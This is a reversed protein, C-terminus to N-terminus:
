VFAQLVETHSGIVIRVNHVKSDNELLIYKGPQLTDNVYVEPSIKKLDQVVNIVYTTDMYQYKLTFSKWESPICPEFWIRDGERRLGLFWEIILQYMWGASGTYWTWGGRGLHLPEAYIDAAMVYPEVKYKAISDESAGHNIPNIMQLLQWTRQKDKLAAFAMVLWIAAHTYQGGNERVGPVYGKIYGPNLQSKDFPPEFLQILGADKKILYKDASSIAMKSREIDGGGSLVSWSQVISDIRCEDNSSSGLPTGDDFYARRYWEGDWCNKEINSKLQKAEEKCREAFAHDAKVGAIKEFRILIDYLFFALWVSEGKGHEGVKDMGDNWDGSGIFPIGHEGFKLAHEISRKCHDYLSASEHSRIPLDYYSEEGANLMRGELFAISEDLIGKDGSTAVYRATVFPLWLFDDSCTTRVGRGTPPHWWHQVDGEKFQRSANLLIQRHVIFPKSYLLSLTDQLQDRFGFAGGSQYFGSRAWIRCALSQYNLWGNTLINLADDPTEIEIVGLTQVWYHKIKELSEHACSTGKYKKIIEPIDDYERVAGIRYIVEKEEEMDLDFVVQMATCPDLAAGTKGSLKSRHMAEPNRIIGNRGIFEVRDNTYTKNEGDADFFIVRNEFETNYPNRILIAGTENQVETLLHMQTKSKLDGLIWEMYGTVSLRRARKSQNQFKLVIFKVSAELDVFMTMESYINDESHQFISYGFGHRTVYPSKSKVPLPSPSWYRGSEEDRIFFAEGALDSVPDNNWPTIRFEHANELWTYSQGSESVITAFNENALVNVWPAPTAKGPTTIIVYEKGDKSFGGMGNFFQLGTPLEISSSVSPHFKTPTFYSISTRAKSRKNAQDLLSGLKDSIVIRALTQFLIRDENSIQDSSRFFIGGPREKIDNSLAPAILSQIENQLVQRYGGHDENWIVLDVILGKLRWYAHAQIMQKVLEINASDEIQLLVIPLDGSVSYSWLSPQGRRNKIIINQDARLTPNSFIVSGALKSYLQADEETANIQRLVVQSHTWSLEIARSRLYRDQYKEVLANCLDKTDAIGILMDVTATEQPEISIRYQISIIPDLVSGQTGSLGDKNNIFAPEHITNGRGIFKSRDTEYSVSIVEARHTKMLHFMSPNHEDDSRPRRTCLIANLKENIETQIFLNSFAPHAVDANFKTLVVEAYSTVEITRKKKSRNTIHLRRLEVDDEPSVVIETHTELGYDRRRFEARGQSFVAEYNEGEKLSPQFAPSWFLSNDQDLDKIFCFNGWNDCTGDERWRTLSIDNWRSYGGGANTVMVHYRGNSLLQIEPTPTDPTNIVRVSLNAVEAIRSTDSIHMVPSYFTSVRPIREQLLLLTAKFRVEAEFRKQMPQGLLRYALALFGMGQHHCMYSRIIVHDQGRPLRAPTYDIAEFFGYEGEFGSLSMQELNKCSEDPAVMLAMMTSYPSVVLDDALGRKFGLGPVGFARYQYNMNSDVANYGSESIGWPVNRRKGYEIQKSVIAKHTQDLLTNDYSPTVLMPMLYEFMSGSWSLLIPSTGASTLQRGLAFWSEQPIKGQAIAAFTTLRAESALLDYFSNDRRHEDVNYGITFLHQKKDYLFDFSLDSFEECHRALGDLMLIRQKARHAAQAIQTALENAWENEEKSYADGTFKKVQPLLEMEIRTLQHLDANVSLTSLLEQLAPSPAQNLLWPAMSLLETKADNIQGELDGLWKAFLTQQETSSTYSDRLQQCPRELTTLAKLADFLTVPPSNRIGDLEKKLQELVVKKEKLTIMVEITDMIGDFVKTSFLPQSKLELLGQKLVMLHAAFNGSDVTSIYRPHLPALSATDYWNYLHNNFRELKFLTDFTNSCRDILKDATIYGFDYAALNSLLSIGINTPSTRHAIRPDPHEQYNDPPLWNDEESVFREFFEWTKRSLRQLFIRQRASLGSEKAPWSLGVWWEVFPAALWLILVPIEIFLAWSHHDILWIMLGLALLPELFMRAYAASVTKPAAQVNGSPNWELLKKRSILLRWITRTIAHLNSLAHYPLFIFYLIQQWVSNYASRLSYTFHPWWEVDNPKRTIESGLSFILPVFLILLVSITWFPASTSGLWGFLILAMMSIPVFSRRLNDFIKWKSLASIPNKVRKKAAGPVRPFLWSAIQWDGRVWRHQRQMDVLYDSPYAEYLQVDSILGCRAYNGELLDHSLIRNDPFRNGLTTEFADVEYIGKGIFSAEYFLDQYVDSVANTYPDTGADNGHIKKYISSGSEPLSNSVRPQLITYGETVRQKKADYHPQNLPHALTAIMRWASERPLSTDTDLTIVYKIESFVSRDGIIVSFNEEHRGRLLENLAGLKGRKREEGMWKNEKPNWKRPRHFLFFFEDRTNEYKRNLGTIKQRAHQLLESDEPLTEDDADKFDTLLAFHLFRNRNALFRVELGEVLDDIGARSTLMTPVVVLTRHTQPIGKSFDLRPLQFPRALLTVLWNIISLSLQSTAIFVPIGLLILRWGTLGDNNAQSLLFWSCLASILFISGAYFLLATNNFAKKCKERITTRVGAISELECIGKGILYYGVHARRDDGRHQQATQVALEAVKKEELDSFRAMREITHRYQDRSSFDMLSYVNAPDQRLIQEVVSVSEVFDRWNTTNLFRLSSISNSISMQAAAQKQNERYVLDLSTLGNESLRQEIWTLPLALSSGKGQLRRVFEAIFSSDMPPNSRAMDAIILVLNKPDKEATETLANAWHDAVNQNLIDVAIQTALRRLNELLALRLMIPIAWLEGLKLTTFNQYSNIFQALTNLDLRADSHSLVEVAIDYVRPLGQSQGRALKPLEKSFGKPLHKKGTYIQEEILYFNDLLWEGAPAIRKKIRVTETLLSHVEILVSENEALRKLLQEPVEEETLKHNKALKFAYQQLQGSSFLESRLPSKENAYKRVLNDGFIPDLISRKIASIAQPLMDIIIDRKKSAM